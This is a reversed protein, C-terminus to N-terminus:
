MGEDSSEREMESIMADAYNRCERALLRYYTLPMGKIYENTTVGLVKAATEVTIEVESAPAHIMIYQHLTMESARSDKISM